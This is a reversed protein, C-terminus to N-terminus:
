WDSKISKLKNTAKSRISLNLPNKLNQTSSTIRCIWMDIHFVTWSLKIDTYCFSCNLSKVLDFDIIEKSDKIVVTIDTNNVTSEKKVTSENGFFISFFDLLNSLIFLNILQFKFFTFVQPFKLKMKFDESTPDNFENKSSSPAESLQNTFIWSKQEFSSPKM